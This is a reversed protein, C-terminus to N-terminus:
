VTICWYCLFCWVYVFVKQLYYQSHWVNLEKDEGVYFEKQFNWKNRNNYSKLTSYHLHMAFNKIKQVLINMLLLITKTFFLRYTGKLQLSFQIHWKFECASYAHIYNTYFCFIYKELVNKENKNLFRMKYYESYTDNYFLPM